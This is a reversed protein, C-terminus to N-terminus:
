IAGMPKYGGYSNLRGARIDHCGVFTKGGFHGNGTTRITYHGDKPELQDGQFCISNPVDNDAEFGRYPDNNFSEMSDMNWGWRMQYFPAMDWHLTNNEPILADEIRRDFLQFRGTLSIPSPMKRTTEFSGLCYFVDRNGFRRNGFNYGNTQDDEKHVFPKVGTGGLYGAPLLHEFNWINRKNHIVNGVYATYQGTILHSTPSAGVMFIGPQRYTHMTSSGAKLIVAGETDYCMHPRLLIGRVPLMVDNYYMSLFTDRRVPTSLYTLMIGREFVSTTRRIKLWRSVFNPTWSLFRLAPASTTIYNLVAHHNDHTNGNKKEFQRAATEVATWYSGLISHENNGSINRAINGPAGPVYVKKLDNTTDIPLEGLEPDAPLYLRDGLETMKLMSAMMVPSVLLMSRIPLANDAGGDTKWHTSTRVTSDKVTDRVNGVVDMLYALVIHNVEDTIPLHVDAFEPFLSQHNLLTGAVRACTFAAQSYNRHTIQVIVPPLFDKMLPKDPGTGIVWNVRDIIVNDALGSKPVSGPANETGYGEMIYKLAVLVALRISVRAMREVIQADNAATATIGNLIDADWPAVDGGAATLISATEKRVDGTDQLGRIINVWLEKVHAADDPQKALAPLLADRRFLTFHNANYLAAWLTTYISPNQIALPSYQPSLLPNDDGLTTALFDAFRRFNPLHTRIAQFEAKAGDSWGTTTEAQEIAQFAYYSLYGYPVTPIEPPRVGTVDSRAPIQDASSKNFVGTFSLNGAGTLSPVDYLVAAAAMNYIHQKYPRTAFSSNDYYTHPLEGKVYDRVNGKTPTVNQARMLLVWATLDKIQPDSMMIATNILNSIDAQNMSIPFALGATVAVGWLTNVTSAYDAVTPRRGAALAVGVASAPDEANIRSAPVLQFSATADYAAVIGAAKNTSHGLYEGGFTICFAAVKNRFADEDDLDQPKESNLLTRLATKAKEMVVDWRTRDPGSSPRPVYKAVLGLIPNVLVERGIKNRAANGAAAVSPDADKVGNLGQMIRLADVNGASAERTAQAVHIADSSPKKVETPLEYFAEHSNLGFDANERALLHPRDTKVPQRLAELNQDVRLSLDWFAAVKDTYVQNGWHKVINDLAALSLEMENALKQHLRGRLAKMCTVVAAHPFHSESIQGIYRVPLIGNFMRTLSERSPIENTQADHPNTAPFRVNDSQGQGWMGDTAYYLSMNALDERRYFEDRGDVNLGPDDMLDRVRGNSNWLQCNNIFDEMTVDYLRNNDEDYIRLNWDCSRYTTDCEKTHRYFEGVTSRVAMLNLPESSNEVPLLFTDVTHVTLGMFTGVTYPDREIQVGTPVGTYDPSTTFGNQQQIFPLFRPSVLITDPQEGRQRDINHRAQTIVNVIYRDSLMGHWQSVGQVMLENIRKGNLSGSPTNTPDLLNAFRINRMMELIITNTVALSMNKLSGLFRARGTESLMFDKEFQFAIGRRALSVQHRRETYSTLRAQAEHPVMGATAPNFILEDWHFDPVNTMAVPAIRWWFAGMVIQAWEVQTGLFNSKGIFHRPLDQTTYDRADIPRAPPVGEGFQGFWNEWQNQAAPDSKIGPFFPAQTGPTNLSRPGTPPALQWNSDGM